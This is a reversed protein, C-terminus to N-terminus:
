LDLLNETTKNYRISNLQETLYYITMNKNQLDKDMQAIIKQQNSLTRQHTQVENYYNTRNLNINELWKQHHKSKCHISFTAIAYSKDKRSGCYCKITTCQSNNSPMKDVYNGQEDISPSYYEPETILEM